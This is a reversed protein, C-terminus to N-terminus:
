NAEAWRSRGDAVWPDGVKIHIENLRYFLEQDFRGQVVREFLSVATTTILRCACVNPISLAGVLAMVEAQLATNLADVAHIVVARPRGVDSSMARTLVTRVYRDDGADVVVVGEAGSLDNGVAIEIAAPLALEAPGSILVPLSTRAAVAMDLSHLRALGISDFHLLRDDNILNM